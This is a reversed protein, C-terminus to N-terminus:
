TSESEVSAISSSAVSAPACGNANSERMFDMAQSTSGNQLCTEKSIGNPTANSKNNATQAESDDLASNLFIPAMEYNYRSKM